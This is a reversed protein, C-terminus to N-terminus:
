QIWKFYNLFINGVSCLMFRVNNCLAISVISISVSISSTATTKPYLTVLIPLHIYTNVWWPFCHFVPVIAALWFPSKWTNAQTIGLCKLDTHDPFTGLPEIGGAVFADCEAWRSVSWHLHNVRMCTSIETVWQHNFCVMYTDTSATGSSQQRWKKLITMNKNTHLSKFCKSLFVIICWM